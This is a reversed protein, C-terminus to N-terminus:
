MTRISYVMVGLERDDPAGLAARPQWTNTRLTLRAPDESAALAAALPPPVDLTYAQADPGVTVSGLAQDGLSVEVVARPLAQPRRGDAMWLTISRTDPTVNLLSVYSVDRTWRYTRGSGPDKEKAHFRVVQLDDRDGIVLVPERALPPVDVFRYVGFDFEKRRPGSPYANVPSEYEPVQFRDSGVPEVGIRRTLLDTGGSGLFFVERYRARADAIFTEMMARDPRPTNLVLVPKAYIYALPLAMVHLDSANRSEVIVLDDDAFRGALRELQPILGAYEVHARVPRAQHWFRVALPALLALTLAVALGQRWDLRPKVAAERAADPAARSPVRVLRCAAAWALGAAMLLCMPLIVPLFRRTMWFHEPVIRIKYFFVLAFASGTVAAGPDRWFVRPLVVLVGVVSALLGWPGVYWAFTRLASADHVATRGVAERFFYAYAAAVALLAALAWPLATRLGRALAPVHSAVRFSAVLLVAAAVLATVPVTERVFVTPVVLYGTMLGTYYAGALAVAAAAISWSLPGLPHRGGEDRRRLWGLVLAAAVGAWVMAGDIRVFLLLGLLWAAVPAFFRDGDTRARAFALLAAFALGMMAVEANPYRSFWTHVVNLVLLVAAAAAPARGLWRAGLFYVAIAGLLAWATVAHRAGTLGHLGYGLAISAPFVHPFQGVVTGTQPDRLFFGMFRVSYYADSGHFPFFLDRTAAPIAAVVPDRTVLSGRQAIQIGENMYTGPDKGGMVYESAVPHMGLGLAVLLAPALAGATPRAAAAYRLRGRFALVLALCAAANISLVWGFRYRELAALALTVTLTWVVSLVVGWFLREEGPLAARGDRDAAPVRLMLAGPLYFLLLSQFAITM